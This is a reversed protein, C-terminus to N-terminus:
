GPILMSAVACASRASSNNPKGCDLAEAEVVITEMVAAVSCALLLGVTVNEAASVVYVGYVNRM